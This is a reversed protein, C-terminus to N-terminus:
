WLGFPPVAPTGTTFTGVPTVPEYCDGDQVKFALEGAKGINEPVSGAVVLVLDGAKFKSM